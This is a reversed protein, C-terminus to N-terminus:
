SSLECTFRECAMEAGRLDNWVNKLSDILGRVEQIESFDEHVARQEDEKCGAVDQQDDSRKADSIAAM